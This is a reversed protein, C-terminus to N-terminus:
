PTVKQKTKIFLLMNNMFTSRKRRFTIDRIEIEYRMFQDSYESFAIYYIICSMKKLPSAKPKEGNCM